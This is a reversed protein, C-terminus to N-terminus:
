AEEWNDIPPKMNALEDVKIAPALLMDVAKALHFLDSLCTFPDPATAYLRGVAQGADDVYGCQWGAPTTALQFWAVPEGHECKLFPPFYKLLDYTLSPNM